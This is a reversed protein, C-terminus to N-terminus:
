AAEPEFIRMDKEWFRYKHLFIVPFNAPITVQCMCCVNGLFGRATYPLLSASNPMPNKIINGPEVNFNLGMGRWVTFEKSYRPM